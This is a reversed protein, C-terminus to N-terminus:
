GTLILKLNQALRLESPKLNLKKKDLAAVVLDLLLQKAKVTIHIPPPPALNATIPKTLSLEGKPVIPRFKDVTAASTQKKSPQPTLKRKTAVKQVLPLKAISKKKSVQKKTKLGTDHGLKKAVKTELKRPDIPRRGKVRKM